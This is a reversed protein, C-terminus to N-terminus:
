TKDSFISGDIYFFRELFLVQGFESRISFQTIGFVFTDFKIGMDDIGNAAEIFGDRDAQATFGRM